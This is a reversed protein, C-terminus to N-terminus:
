CWETRNRVPPIILSPRGPQSSTESPGPSVRHPNRESLDIAFDGYMYDEEGAEDDADSRYSDGGNEPPESELDGRPLSELDEAQDDIVPVQDPGGGDIEDHEDM